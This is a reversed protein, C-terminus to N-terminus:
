LVSLTANVAQRATVSSEEWQSCTEVLNKWDIRAIQEVAAQKWIISSKKGPARDLVALAQSIDASLFFSSTIKAADDLDINPFELTFYPTIISFGDADSRIDGGAVLLQKGVSFVMSLQEETLDSHKRLKDLHDVLLLPKKSTRIETLRM